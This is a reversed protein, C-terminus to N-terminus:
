YLTYCHITLVFTLLCFCESSNFTVLTVQFIWFMALKALNDRMEDFRRDEGWQLIRILTFSFPHIWVLSYMLCVKVSCQIYAIFIENKVYEYLYLCRSIKFYLLFFIFRMLLFVGLRLGWLVVLITLIM